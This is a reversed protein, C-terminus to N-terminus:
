INEWIIKKVELFVEDLSYDTDVDDHKSKRILSSLNWKELRRL